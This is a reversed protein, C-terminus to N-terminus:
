IPRIPAAATCFFIVSPGNAGSAGAVIAARTRRPRVPVFGSSSVPFSRCAMVKTKRSLPFHGIGVSSTLSTRALGSNWSVNVTVWVANTMPAPPVLADVGVDVNVCGVGQRVAELSVVYRRALSVDDRPVAPLEGDHRDVIERPESGAPKM